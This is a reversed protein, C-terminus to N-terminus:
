CLSVVRVIVFLYVSFFFPFLYLRWSVIARCCSPSLGVSMALIHENVSFRASFVIGMCLFLYSKSLTEVILSGM